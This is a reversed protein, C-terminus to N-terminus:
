PEFLFVHYGLSSKKVKGGESQSVSMPLCGLPLWARIRVCGRHEAPVNEAKFLM